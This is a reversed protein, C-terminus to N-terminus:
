KRHTAESVQMASTTNNSMGRRGCNFCIEPGYVQFDLSYVSHFPVRHGHAVHSAYHTRPSSKQGSCRSCRPKGRFQPLIALSIARLTSSAQQPSQSHVHPSFKMIHKAGCYHTRIDRTHNDNVLRGHRTRRVVNSIMDRKCDRKVVFSGASQDDLQVLVYRGAARSNLLQKRGLKWSQKGSVLLM